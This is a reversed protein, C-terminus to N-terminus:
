PVAFGIRFSRHLDYAEVKPLGLPQTSLMCLMEPHGMWFPETGSRPLPVPFGFRRFSSSATMLLMLCRGLWVQRLDARARAEALRVLAELQRTTIPAGGGAASKARLDLYFARLVQM